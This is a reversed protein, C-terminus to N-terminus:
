PQLRKTRSIPRRACRSPIFRTGHVLGANATFPMDPLGDIPAVAEILVHRALVERLLTWQRRATTASTARLHGHMWPNIAYTVEYHAPACMLM